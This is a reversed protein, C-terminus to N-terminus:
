LFDKRFPQIEVGRYFHKLIKEAKLGKSAMYKAGWQSMGVGHGSGQGLVILGKKTSLENNLDEEFFKFRVLNSKLGLRKRLDVGSMKYSGYAGSLRVNKVRGTKTINLIEINKLGGINPFLNTLEKSSFKRQWSFKPNKKDFDKVSSLYHYENKWVDQSNETMGGSSSHFVANILKNKHTLVLSRTSRVARTTKYTRSELGNYVQNKQTSDIDFLNNGKQKLAYTRSAIAQAKLAEMPWKTPMEAGVVSSLYKEIRLVNVVLIESDLIFLNIKGSFRKQGVWIGRGDSSRIQFKQNHKLDYQEKKNKDFYIIKRNQENKLTLGKVKKNSFIEGEITLPISKDSRIRLNNSKSILVRIIPERSAFVRESQFVCIFLISIFCYKIYNNKLKLIM